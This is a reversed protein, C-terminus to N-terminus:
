SLPQGILRRLAKKVSGFLIIPIGSVTKIQGKEDISSMDMTVGQFGFGICPQDRRLGCCRSRSLVLNYMSLGARLKRDYGARRLAAIFLLVIFKLRSDYDTKYFRQVQDWSQIFERELPDDKDAERAFRDEIRAM